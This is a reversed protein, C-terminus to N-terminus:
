IDDYFYGLIISSQALLYEQPHLISTECQCNVKTKCTKRKTPVVLMFSSNTPM